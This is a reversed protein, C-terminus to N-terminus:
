GVECLEQWGIDFSSHWTQYGFACLAELLGIDKRM